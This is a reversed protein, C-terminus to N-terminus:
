KELLKKMMEEIENGSYVVGDIMANPAKRCQKLCNQTRLELRGDASIGNEQIQFEEKWKKLLLMGDKKGCREGTCVIVEHETNVEKLSPYMRLLCKLFNESVGTTEMVRHKLELTICGCVDQIERLLSVVMEQSNKDSQGGYYSFIEELQENM